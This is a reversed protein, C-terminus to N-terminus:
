KALRMIEDVESDTYGQDLYKQRQAVAKSPPAVPSTQTKAEMQQFKRALPPWAPHRVVM